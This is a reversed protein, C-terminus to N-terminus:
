RSMSWRFGLPGRKLYDEVGEAVSPIYQRPVVGGVVSDAFQFGSGRPLPAIDIYIDGFQGHGGSQRKHRGHESVQKRITEKYPVQPRHGSVALNFRNKLKDLAVHLHIEGQGWLVLEGTDQNLQVSLSPDEEALKAMAATLKVEDQKKDAQVALPFLPPLATPWSHM